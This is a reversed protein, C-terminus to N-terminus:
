KIMVGPKNVFPIRMFNSETISETLFIFKKDYIVGNVYYSLWFENNIAFLKEDILEIASFSKAKLNCIFHRFVSTKVQEGNLTGYGKSSVLVNEIEIEKLNLIYVKWSSSQIHEEELVVAIAIDEVINEPLDSKM